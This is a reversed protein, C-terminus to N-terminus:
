TFTPLAIRLVEIVIMNPKEMSTNDLKIGVIYKPTKVPSAMNIASNDTRANNGFSIKTQLGNL